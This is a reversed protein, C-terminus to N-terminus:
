TTLRSAPRTTSPGAASRRCGEWTSRSASAATSGAAAYGVMVNSVGPAVGCDVVATVGRERALADLELANEPMFSIDVYDRGAEIVAGLTQYGLVSPLAGIVLDYDAVVRRIAAADALDVRVTRVRHQAAIRDLTAARVDAVTVEAEPDGALDMAMASGIMGGGLVLFRAM